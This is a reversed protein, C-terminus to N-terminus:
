RRRLWALWRRPRPLPEHHLGCRPCFPPIDFGDM